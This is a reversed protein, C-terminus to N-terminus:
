VEFGKPLEVLGLDVVVVGPVARAQLGQLGNILQDVGDDGAQGSAWADQVVGVEDVRGVVALMSSSTLMGKKM